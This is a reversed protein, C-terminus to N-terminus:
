HTQEYMKYINTIRNPDPDYLLNIFHENWQDPNRDGQWRCSLFLTEWLMEGNISKEVLRAPIKMFYNWNDIKGETAFNGSQNQKSMDFVFEGGNKGEAILQIKMDIYKRAIPNESIIKNFYDIIMSPLKESAEGEDKRRRNLDDQVEISLENLMDMKNTSLIPEDNKVHHGDIGIEDDAAM